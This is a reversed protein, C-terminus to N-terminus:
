AIVAHEASSRLALAFLWAPKEETEPVSGNSRWAEM